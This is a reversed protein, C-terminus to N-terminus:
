ASAKELRELAIDAAALVDALEKLERYRDRWHDLEWLATELVQGRLKKNSMAVAVNEYRSDEGRNVHVFARVKHGKQKSDEIVVEINQVITRAQELRFKEAAISDRWEFCGHLPSTKVRADALISKPTLAKRKRLMELREGVVQAPVGGSAWQTKWRYIM